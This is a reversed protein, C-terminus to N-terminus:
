NKIWYPLERKTYKLLDKKDYIYYDRYAKVADNNKYEVPLAQVFPTLGKDTLRPTELSLIVDGSKHDKNNYRYKYEEYLALGLDRLWLWNSLSERVWISCPHNKHTLKYPSKHEESTYYYTSCLLQAVEVTMKVVHKDCHYRACKEIDEDLIFINIFIL